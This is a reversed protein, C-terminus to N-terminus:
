AEELDAVPVTGVALFLCVEPVHLYVLCTSERIFAFLEYLEPRLDLLTGVTPPSVDVVIQSLSSLEVLEGGQEKVFEQIEKSYTM